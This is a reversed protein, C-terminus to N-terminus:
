HEGLAMDEAVVAGQELREALVSRSMVSDYHLLLPTKHQKAVFFPAKEFFPWLLLKLRLDTLFLGSIQYNRLSTLFAKIEPAFTRYIFIFGYRQARFVEAIM